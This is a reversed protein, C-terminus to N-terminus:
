AKMGLFNAVQEIVEKRRLRSLPVEEGAVTLSADNIGVIHAMNVYYCRHCLVFGCDQLGEMAGTLTGYAEIVSGDAMHYRLNRSLVEIYAIDDAALVRISGGSRVMISKATKRDVSRIARRMKMRLSEYDLPKVVFDFAHYRYSDLAFRSLRTVFILLVEEDMKRIARATEMGDLGQMEIDLFIIDYGRYGDLLALGDGFCSLEYAGAKEESFFRQLLVAYGDLISKEDDVAAIRYM